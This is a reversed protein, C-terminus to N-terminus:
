RTTPATRAQAVAFPTGQQCTTVRNPRVTGEVVVEAGPRPPSTTPSAPSAACTTPSPVEEGEQFLVLLDDDGYADANLVISGDTVDMAVTSAGGDAIPNDDSGYGHRMRDDRHRARPGREDGGGDRRHEPCKASEGM